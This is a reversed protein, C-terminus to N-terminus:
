KYCGRRNLAAQARRRIWQVSWGERILFRIVTKCEEPWCDKLLRKLSMGEYAFDCLAERSSTNEFFVRWPIALSMTFLRKKPKSRM